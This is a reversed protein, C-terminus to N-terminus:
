AVQRLWYEFLDQHTKGAHLSSITKILQADSQTRLEPMDLCRAISPCVQRSFTNGESTVVLKECWFLESAVTNCNYKTQNRQM